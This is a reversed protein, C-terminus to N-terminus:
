TPVFHLTWWRKLGPDGVGADLFPLVVIFGLQIGNISREGEGLLEGLLIAEVECGTTHLEWALCVGVGEIM